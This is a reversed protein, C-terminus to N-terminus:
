DVSDATTVDKKMGQRCWWCVSLLYIVLCVPLDHLCVNVFIVFLIACVIAGTIFSLNSLKAWCILLWSTLKSVSPAAIRPFSSPFETRVGTDQLDQAVRYRLTEEREFVKHPAPFLLESESLSETCTFHGSPGSTHSTICLMPSLPHSESSSQLKHLEKDKEKDIYDDGESSRGYISQGVTKLGNECEKDAINEVSSSEKRQRESSDSFRNKVLEYCVGKEEGSDLCETQKHPEGEDCVASTRSSIWIETNGDKLQSPEEDDEQLRSELVVLAEEYESWSIRKMQSANENEEPIHEKKKKAEISEDIHQRELSERSEIFPQNRIRTLTLTDEVVRDTDGKVNMDLFETSKACQELLVGPKTKSKPPETADEADATEEQKTLLMPEDKSFSRESLTHRDHPAEIVGPRWEIRISESEQDTHSESIIQAESIQSPDLSPSLKAPESEHHSGDRITLACEQSNRVSLINDGINSVDYETNSPQSANSGASCLLCTQDLANNHNELSDTGNLFAVWADNSVEISVDETHEKEPVDLRTGSTINRSWDLPLLPIQHDPLISSRTEHQENRSCVQLTSSTDLVSTHKIHPPQILRVHTERHCFFDQLYALRAARRRSRREALTKCSEELTDGSLSEAKHQTKEKKNEVSRSTEQESLESSMDIPKSEACSGKKIAKLCSKKGKQNNEEFDREKGGEKEKLARGGRQHCFLVYNMAGNNAWFIGTSSEYCLCFEVRVGDPPFPPMLTLQFSFRDTEGDSSGPVYEALQDFHSQWGDLTTRVYVVKHYSLNLVRVTGRITTSGPLLEISELELKNQHLRLALEEDSAPVSFICSLYFEDGERGEARELRNDFEKVSVLDLGFADAFSVRRRGVSALPPEPESEESEDSSSRQPYKPEEEDEDPKWASLTPPETYCSAM